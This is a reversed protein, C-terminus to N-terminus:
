MRPARHNGRCQGSSFLKADAAVMKQAGNRQSVVHSRAKRDNDALAVFALRMAARM